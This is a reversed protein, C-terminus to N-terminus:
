ILDFSSVFFPRSPDYRQEINRGVVEVKKVGIIKNLIGWCFGSGITTFNKDNPDVFWLLSHVKYLALAGTFLAELKKPDQGETYVIDPTLFCHLKPQILKRLFPIYPLGKVLVGGFAGPLRHIRWKVLTFKACAEIQGAASRMLVFPGEKVHDDFYADYNQYQGQVLQEIEACPESFTIKSNKKPYLRSFSKSVIDTYHGFGFRSSMERSRSNDSDIYAYFPKESQSTLEEFVQEIKKHFISNYNKRRSSNSSSQYRTHFAFYRIYYAFDRLCFTVNAVISENRTLTFSKPNDTQKIRERVDLHSYKAGNTGLQTAELFVVLEESIIHSEKLVM